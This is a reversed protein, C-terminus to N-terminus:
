STCERKLLIVFSRVLYIGSILDLVWHREKFAVAGLAANAISLLFALYAFIRLWGFVRSVFNTSLAFLVYIWLEASLSPPTPPKSFVGQAAFERRGQEFRMRRQYHSDEIPM